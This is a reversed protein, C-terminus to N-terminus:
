PSPTKSPMRTKSPPSNRASSCMSRSAREARVIPSGIGSPRSSITPSTTRRLPRLSACTRGITARPNPPGPMSGRLQGSGVTTTDAYGNGGNRPASGIRSNVLATTRLAGRESPACTFDSL